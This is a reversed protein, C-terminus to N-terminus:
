KGLMSMIRQICERNAEDEMAKMEIQLKKGCEECALFSTMYIYEEKPLMNNCQHFCCKGDENKKRASTLSPESTTSFDPILIQNMNM